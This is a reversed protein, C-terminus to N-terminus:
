RGFASVTGLKAPEFLEAPPNPEERWSLDFVDKTHLKYEQMTVRKPRWKKGIAVFDGDRRMKVLNNMRDKYYLIQMPVARQRDFRYVRLAYQTGGGRSGECAVDVHEPQVDATRIMGGCRSPLFPLLDEVTWSTGDIKADPPAKRRGGGQSSTWIEDPGLVLVREKAQRMEFYIQVAARDPTPRLVIAIADQKAGDVGDIEAKGDARLPTELETQAEAKRILDALDDARAPPAAALAALVAFARTTSTPM